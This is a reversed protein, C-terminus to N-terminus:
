TVSLLVMGAVTVIRAVDAWRRDGVYRGASRWVGVMVIFNYPVSLAYGAVFAAVLHDAMILALFLISTLANVAVGGAVAWNWFAQPLPLDGQWLRRLASM